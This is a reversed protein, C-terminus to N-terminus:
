HKAKNQPRTAQLLWGNLNHHRPIRLVVAFHLAYYEQEEWRRQHHGTEKSQPDGGGRERERERERERGEKCNNVREVVCPVVVIVDVPVEVIVEVPVLEAV